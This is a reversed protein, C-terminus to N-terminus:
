RPCLMTLNCEKCITAEPPTTVAFKARRFADCRRTSVCVQRTWAGRTTPLVMLADEKRAESPWYLLLGNVHRRHRRELTHAYTCPRREYAAILEPSDKPRPSTKFDLLELKGDGGLLLNV